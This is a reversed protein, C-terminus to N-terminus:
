FVLVLRQHCAFIKSLLKLVYAVFYLIHCVLFVHCHYLNKQYYFGSPFLISQLNLHQHSFFTFVYRLM